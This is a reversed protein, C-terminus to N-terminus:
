EAHALETPVPPPPATAPKPPWSKNLLDVPPLDTQCIPCIDSTRTFDDHWINRISNRCKPCYFKLTAPHRLSTRCKPCFPDPREGNPLLPPLEAKCRYCNQLDSHIFEPNEVVSPCPNVRIDSTSDAPDSAPTTNHKRPELASPLNCIASEDSRTPDSGSPSNCIASAESQPACPAPNTAVSDVAAAAQSEPESPPEFPACLSRLYNREEASTVPADAGIFGLGDDKPTFEPAPPLEAPAHPQRDTPAFEDRPAPRSRPFSPQSLDGQIPKLEPTKPTSDFSSDAPSPTPRTTFGMIEDLKDLIANREEDTLERHPDLVPRQANKTVGSVSDLHKRLALSERSLRALNTLLRNYNAPDDDLQNTRLAKFLKTMAMRLVGKHFATEDADTGLLAALEGDNHLEHLAEQHRLWDQFGGEKWNTINTPNLDVKLSRFHDIIATSTAGDALMRNLTDRQEIPLKAIKGNRRSPCQIPPLSTNPSCM